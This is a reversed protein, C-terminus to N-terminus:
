AEEQRRGNFECSMVDCWKGCLGSPTPPFEHRIHAKFLENLSDDMGNLQGGYYEQRDSTGEFLYVFLTTIRAEPYKAKVCRKIFDHQVRADRKKGTKWDICVVHREPDGVIADVVCRQYANDDYFSTARREFDVGLKMEVGVLIPLMRDLTPMLPALLSPLPERYKLYYELSKHVLDGFKSHENPEFVVEKTIYKAEYQRPCTLFTQLSTPSQVNM